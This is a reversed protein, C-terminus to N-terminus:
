WWYKKRQIITPILTIIVIAPFLYYYFAFPIFTIAEKITIKRKVHKHAKIFIYLIIITTTIFLGASIINITFINIKPITSAKILTWIDYGSANLLKLWNNLAKGEIYAFAGLGIVAMIYFAINMPLQFMGFDGYKKNLILGKYKTLCQIGGYFWRRRQYYLQKWTKPAKTTVFAETCQKIKYGEKQIKYAMEQDETVTEKSFGGLKKILETKYLSFPGPTVFIADMEGITHQMLASIVYEVYQIWEVFKKPSHVLMIPTIAGAKKGEQNFKMIQEKLAEPNIMSDADLCAFYEGKAKLLANNLAEAKGKNEQNILTIKRNKNEKIIERAVEETKDKSGDNIIIVEFKTKPYELQLVSTATEKLTDEENYAPIAITVLPYETIEKKLPKKNGTEIIKLLITIMFYLSIAYVPLLIITLTEVM